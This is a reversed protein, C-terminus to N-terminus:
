AYHHFLDHHLVAFNMAKALSSSKPKLSLGLLAIIAGTKATRPIKM